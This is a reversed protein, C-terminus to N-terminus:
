VNGVREVQAHLSDGVPHDPRAIRPDDLPDTGLPDHEVEAGGGVPLALGHLRKRLMWQRTQNPGTHPARDAGVRAGDCVRRQAVLELQRRPHPHAIVLQPPAVLSGVRGLEASGARAGRGM